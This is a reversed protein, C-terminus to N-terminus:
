VVGGGWYRRENENWFLDKELNYTLGLLATKCDLSYFVNIDSVERDGQFVVVFHLANRQYPYVYYVDTPYEIM